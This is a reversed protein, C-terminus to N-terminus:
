YVNRNRLLSWATLFLIRVDLGLTWNQIYELDYQVRKAMKEVTETEGRLGHVQAWGTIGPLITHRLMYGPIQRRYYENHEAAHPRPGVLSMTGELVNWLQPLEDISSRRLFRGIRTVRPDHQTAQAVQGQSDAHVHMSRFKRVWIVDGSHGYRRQKFIVPGPSDLKIALAVLLLIPSLVLLMLASVAIDFSRKILRSLGLIRNEHLALLPVGALEGAQAKFGGLMHAEPVLYLSATSDALAAMVQGAQDSRLVDMGVMVVDFENARIRVLADDLSGLRQLSAEPLEHATPDRLEPNDFFGAVRLGLVSSRLLRTALEHSAAGPQLLAVMRPETDTAYVRQATLRMVVLVPLLVPITYIAWQQFLTDTVAIHTNPLLVYALASFLIVFGWQVLGRWLMFNISRSSLLLRFRYFVTTTVVAIAIALPENIGGLTDAHRLSLLVFMGVAVVAAGLGVLSFYIRSYQPRAM